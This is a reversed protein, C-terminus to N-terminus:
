KSKMVEHEITVKAGRGPWSPLAGESSPPYTINGSHLSATIEGIERATRGAQRLIKTKEELVAFHNANSDATM